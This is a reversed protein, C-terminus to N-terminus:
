DMTTPYIGYLITHISSSMVSIDLDDCLHKLDSCAPYGIVVFSWSGSKQILPVCNGTTRIEQRM